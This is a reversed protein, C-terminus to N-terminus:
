RPDGILIFSAWYYPHAYLRVGTPVPASSRDVPAPGEVQALPRVPGRDLAALAGGVEEATLGRLWRKAEDLAEPLNLPSLPVPNRTRSSPGAWSCPVKVM